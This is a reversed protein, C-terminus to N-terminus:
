HLFIHTFCNYLLKFLFLTLLLYSTDCTHLFVKQHNIIHSFFTRITTFFDDFSDSFMKAGHIIQLNIQVSNTSYFVKQVVSIAIQLM